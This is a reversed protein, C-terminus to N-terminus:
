FTDAFLISPLETSAVWLGDESKVYQQCLSIIKCAGGLAVIHQEVEVRGSLAKQSFGSSSLLLGREAQEMIVIEAFRSIVGSGVFNVPSWHKVEILYSIGSASVELDFGGDKTGRTLKTAFGLAELVERLVRELDRWEVDRLECPCQALRSAIARMSRRIITSVGNHEAQQESENQLPEALYRKLTPRGNPQYHIRDEVDLQELRSLGFRWTRGAPPHYDRWMYSMSTRMGPATLDGAIWPGRPDGDVNHFRSVDIHDPPAASTMSIKLVTPTSDHNQTLM